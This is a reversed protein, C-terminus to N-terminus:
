EEKDDDLNRNGKTAQAIFARLAKLMRTQSRLSLIGGRLTSEGSGGPKDPPPLCPELKPPLERSGFTPALSTISKGIHTLCLSDRDERIQSSIM